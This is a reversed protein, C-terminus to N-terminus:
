GIIEKHLVCFPPGCRELDYPRPGRPAGVLFIEGQLEEPLQQLPYARVVQALVVHGGNHGTGASEYGVQRVRTWPM